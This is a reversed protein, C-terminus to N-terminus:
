HLPLAVDMPLQMCAVEFLAVLNASHLTDNLFLQM